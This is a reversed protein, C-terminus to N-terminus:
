SKSPAVTIGSALDDPGFNNAPASGSAYPPQGYSVNDGVNPSVRKTLLYRYMGAWTYIWAV